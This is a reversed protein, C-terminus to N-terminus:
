LADNILTSYGGISPCEVNCVIMCAVDTRPPGDHGLAAKTLEAHRREPSAVAVIFVRDLYEFATAKPQPQRAPCAPQVDVYKGCAFSDPARLVYRSQGQVLQPSVLSEIRKQATGMPLELPAM